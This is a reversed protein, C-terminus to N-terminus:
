ALGVIWHELVGAIKAREESYGEELMECLVVDYQIPGFRIAEIDAPTAAPALAEPQETPNLVKVIRARAKGEGNLIVVDGVNYKPKRLEAVM